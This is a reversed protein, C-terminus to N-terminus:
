HIFLFLQLNERLKKNKMVHNMYFLNNDYYTKLYPNM